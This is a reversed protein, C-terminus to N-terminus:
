GENVLGRVKDLIGDIIENAYFKTSVYPFGDLLSDRIKGGKGYMVNWGVRNMLQKVCALVKQNYNRIGSEHLEAIRHKVYDSDPQGEGRAEAYLKHSWCEFEFFVRVQCIIELPVPADSTGINLIIKLDRYNRENETNYFKDKILLIKEPMLMILGDVFARAQPIIDFLCKIRYIDNLHEKALSKSIARGVNKQSGVIITIISSLALEADHCANFTFFQNTAPDDDMAYHVIYNNRPSIDALQIPAGTKCQTMPDYAYVPTKPAGLYKGVCYFIERFWKLGDSYLRKMYEYNEPTVLGQAFATEIAALNKEDMDRYTRSM